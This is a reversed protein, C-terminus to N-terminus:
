ENSRFWRPPTHLGDWIDLTYHTQRPTQQYLADGVGKGSGGSSDRMCFRRIMERTPARGRETLRGIYQIPEQEQQPNLHQQNIAKAQMPAQTGKCRRALTHRSLHYKEAFKTYSLQENEDQAEMAEVALDIPDINTSNDRTSIPTV